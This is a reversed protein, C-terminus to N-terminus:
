RVSTTGPNDLSPICVCHSNDGFPRDDPQVGGWTLIRWDVGHDQDFFPAWRADIGVFLQRKLAKYGDWAPIGWSLMRNTGWLWISIGDPTPAGTTREFAEELAVRPQGEQVFRLLDVIYWAGRVDGDEVATHLLQYDFQGEFVWETLEAFAAEAAPSFEGEPVAPAPHSQAAGSVFALASMLAALAMHRIYTM